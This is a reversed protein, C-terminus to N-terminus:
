KSTTPAVLDAVLVVEADAGAPTEAYVIKGGCAHILCKSADGLPYENGGAGDHLLFGGSDNGTRKALVM